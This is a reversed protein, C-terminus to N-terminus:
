ATKNVSSEATSNGLVGLLSSEIPPGGNLARRERELIISEGERSDGGIRNNAEQVNGNLPSKILNVIFERQM